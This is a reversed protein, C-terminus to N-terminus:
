VFIHLVSNFFKVGVNINAATAKNLAASLHRTGIEAIEKRQRSLDVMDKKKKKQWSEFFRIYFDRM